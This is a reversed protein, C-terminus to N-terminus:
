LLLCCGERSLLAVFPSSSLSCLHSSGLFIAGGHSKERIGGRTVLRETGSLPLASAACTHTHTHTHTYESACPGYDLERRPSWSFLAEVPGRSLSLCEPAVDGPTLGGLDHPLPAHTQPHTVRPLPPHCFIERPISKM